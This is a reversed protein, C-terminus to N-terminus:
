KARYTTELKTINDFLKNNKNNLNKFKPMEYYVKPHYQHIVLIDDAISLKLKLRKVRELFENDEYGIGYSYREDFGNLKNMNKKTIASCFHYHTPRFKSHNYWGMHQGKNRIELEQPSKEIFKKITNIDYNKLQTQTSEEDLAYTSITIYKSDDINENVYTLVDHVHLCEPNQLIIIDGVAERIGINYPVCSNIHWKNEKEIRIIKLFSFEKLYEELRHEPLSCDDVVILEFNKFKSNAISKLTEYFQKKRNYYATVISIKIYKGWERNVNRVIIEKRDKYLKNNYVWDPNELMIQGTCRKGHYLHVIKADVRHYKCEILQLRDVFDNDESAYGILDEDYGGIDLIHQKWVGMLFPMQVHDNNIECTNLNNKLKKLLNNTYINSDDFYMFNPITILDHNNILPTIIENIGDNLHYIEACSLIIIDGDSNKIGINIPIPSSRYIMGESNRQGSFIYKINLKNKYSDCVNKTNDDAGDNVVIVELDYNIKQNVISALGLNLLEARNYSTIVISVKLKKKEEIVHNNDDVKMNIVDNAIASFTTKYNNYNKETLKGNYEQSEVGGGYWHYGISDFPFKNIGNSNNFCYKIKTFDFNYILSTPINYVNLNPYKSIIKNYIPPYKNENYFMKYILGVGMSQYDKEINIINNIGFEFLNKYYENNISAGLFGITLTTSINSRYEHIITDYGNSVINNYFDDIPRFFLVDTDCYFGGNLFLQYYRFLDGEHIPSMNKFKSRLEIPFEVKEIKISLEKLKEFYNYGKYQYYDQNEHSKWGKDKKNNNSIYLIVEWDPNMKKFSFITMYRMWSLNSGGWYFFIRKPIIKKLLFNTNNKTNINQNITYNIDDNQNINDNLKIDDNQNINDNLKLNDNQNIDNSITPANYKGFNRLRDRENMIKDTLNGKKNLFVSHEKRYEIKKIISKKIDSKNRNANNM